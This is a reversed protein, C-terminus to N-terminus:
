VQCVSSHSWRHWCNGTRLMTLGIVVTQACCRRAKDCALAAMLHRSLAHARPVRALWACGKSEPQIGGAGADAVGGGRREAPRDPEPVAAATAPLVRVREAPRHARAVAVSLRLRARWRAACALRRALSRALAQVRAVRLCALEYQLEGGASALRTGAAPQHQEQRAPLPNCNARLGCWVHPELDPQHRRPM